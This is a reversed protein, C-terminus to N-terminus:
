GKGKEITKNEWYENFGRQVEYFNESPDQMKDIWIQAFLLQPTLLLILLKKM